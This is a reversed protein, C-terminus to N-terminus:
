VGVTGEFPPPGRATRGLARDLEEVAAAPAAASSEDPGSARLAELAAHVENTLTDVVALPVAVDLTPPVARAATVVM